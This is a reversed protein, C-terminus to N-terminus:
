SGAVISGAGSVDQHVEKTEGYYRVSGAGSVDADLRDSAWVEADGAGSLDIDVIKATLERADLDSAGSSDVEFEDVSGRLVTKSAGSLELEFVEGHLGEVEIDSAGSASLEKLSAVWVEVKMPLEPRVMGRQIEVDLEGSTVTTEIKPVVNDDGSVVVRQPAQPDVHVVLEFAGGIDISDFAEVERTEILETGSGRLFCGGLGLLSGLLAVAFLISPPRVTPKRAAM